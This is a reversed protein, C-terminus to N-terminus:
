TTNGKGQANLQLRNGQMVQHLQRAHGLTTAKSTYNGQKVITCNDEPIGPPERSAV